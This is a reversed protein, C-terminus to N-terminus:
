QKVVGMYPRGLVSWLAVPGVWFAGDEFVVPECRRIDSGDFQRETYEIMDREFVRTGFRDRMGTYQGISGEEVEYIFAEPVGDQAFVFCEILPHTRKLLSGYVYEGNDTREGRFLIDRM